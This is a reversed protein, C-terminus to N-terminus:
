IGGVAMETSLLEAAVPLPSVYFWGSFQNRRGPRSSMTLAAKAFGRPKRRRQKRVQLMLRSINSTVKRRRLM